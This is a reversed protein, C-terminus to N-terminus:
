PQNPCLLYRDKAAAYYEVSQVMGEQVEYTIGAEKNVYYHVSPLHTDQVKKFKRKDIRSPPFQASKEKLGISFSVVTDPAINWGGRMEERCPGSSYEISIARDGLDYVASFKEPEPSPGLLKEVDARTSHLPTIGRWGQAKLGASSSLILILAILPLVSGKM